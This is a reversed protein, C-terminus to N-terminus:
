LRAYDSIDQEFQAAMDPTMTRLEAEPGSM